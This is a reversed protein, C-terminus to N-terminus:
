KGGDEVRERGDLDDEDFPSVDDLYGRRLATRFCSYCARSKRDPRDVEEFESITGCYARFHTGVEYEDSGLILMSPPDTGFDVVHTKSGTSTDGFAQTEKM